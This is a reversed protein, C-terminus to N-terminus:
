GMALVGQWLFWAGALLLIAGGLRNLAEGHGLLRNRTGMLGAGLSAAAIVATYGIAYALMTTVALPTSGTAAAAALVAFLVPSACPSSVLAFGVGVLFPGGVPPLPPLAPLPLPLWGGLRLGMLLIFLGVALHVPGRHDVAIAAAFSSLLGLLCFVLVAGAMFAAVRPLTRAGSRGATAGIYSLNLPLMALLCPSVSALLGGGFAFLPLLLPPRDPAAGLWAAYLQSAELVTQELAAGLRPLVLAAALALLPLAALLGWRPL